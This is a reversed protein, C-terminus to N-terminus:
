FLHLGRRLLDLATFFLVVLVLRNFFVQSVHNRARSGIYTGLLSIPILGVAFLVREGTYLGAAFFSIFQYVSLVLFLVNLVYVFQHKELKLTYLYPALTPGSV